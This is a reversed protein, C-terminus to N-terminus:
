ERWRQWLLFGLVISCTVAANFWGTQERSFDFSNRVAVMAVALGGVVLVLILLEKPRM